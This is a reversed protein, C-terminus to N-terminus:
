GAAPCDPLLMYNGCISTPLYEEKNNSPKVELQTFVRDDTNAEYELGLHNRWSPVRSGFARITVKQKHIGNWFAWTGSFLSTDVSMEAIHHQFLSRLKSKVPETNMPKAFLRWVPQLTSSIMSTGDCLPGPVFELELKAFRSDYIARWTRDFRTGQFRVTENLAAFLLYRVQEAFKDNHSTWEGCSFQPLDNISCALKLALVAPLMLTLERAFESMPRRDDVVLNDM